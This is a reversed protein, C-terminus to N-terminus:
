ITISQEQRIEQITKQNFYKRPNGCMFCSCPKRTKYIKGIIKLEDVPNGLNTYRSLFTRKCRKKYKQANFRRISRKQKVM